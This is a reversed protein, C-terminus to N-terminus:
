NFLVRLMTGAKDCTEQWEHEPVSEATIGAGVYVSALGDKINMCRLNVYFSLSLAAEDSNDSSIVGLYGTYFSRDYGENAAIFELADRLPQGAVAPTPHLAELLEEATMNGTKGSITSRLHWLRGARVSKPESVQHVVSKSKLINRIYDTVFGQEQLEKGSWAPMEDGQYKLTGALASTMFREGKVQLLLEPSAGLWSGTDPHFWLYCFAGAYAQLLAQFVEVPHARSNILVRRSLVVKDFVGNAISEKAREIGQLYASKQAGSDIESPYPIVPIEMLPPSALSHISDPRIMLRAGGSRFPAMVFGAAGFGEALVMRRDHQLLVIVREDGPERYAVFPLKRDFQSELLQM